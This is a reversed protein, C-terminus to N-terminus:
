ISQIILSSVIIIGLLFFTTTNIQKNDSDDFIYNQKSPLRYNDIYKYSKIKSNSKFIKSNSKYSKNKLKNFNDLKFPNYETDSFKILEKNEKCKKLIEKIYSREIGHSEHYKSDSDDKKVLAYYTDDKLLIFIIKKYKEKDREDTMHCKFKSDYMYGNDISIFVIKTKNSDYHEFLKIMDMRFEKDMNELYQRNKKIIEDTSYNSTNDKDFLTNYFVSSLEKKESDKYYKYALTDERFDAIIKKKEEDDTKKRYDRKNIAFFIAHLLTSKDQIPEILVFENKDFTSDKLESPLSRETM